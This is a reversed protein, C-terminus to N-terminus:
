NNTKFAEVAESCGDSLESKNDILCQALRGEGIEVDGCLKDADNRCDEVALQLNSVVGKLEAVADFLSNFCTQSLKDEHALACHLLRGEGPKVSSCFKDKDAKCSAEIDEIVEDMRDAFMKAAETEAIAAVPTALVVALAFLGSKLVISNMAMPIELCNINVAM